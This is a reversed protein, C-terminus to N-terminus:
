VPPQAQHKRVRDTGLHLEVISHRSLADARERARERHGQIAELVAVVLPALATLLTLITALTM